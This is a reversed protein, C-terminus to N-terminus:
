PQWTDDHGPKTILVHTRKDRFKRGGEEEKDKEPQGLGWQPELERSDVSTMLYSNSLHRFCSSTQSRCLDADTSARQTDLPQFIKCQGLNLLRFSIQDTFSSLKFLSLIWNLTVQQRLNRGNLM